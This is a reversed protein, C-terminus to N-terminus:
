AAVKRKRTLKANAPIRYGAQADGYHELLGSRIWNRVTQASVGATRAYQDVTLTELALELRRELRALDAIAGHLVGAQSEAGYAELTGATERWTDRQKALEALVTKLM